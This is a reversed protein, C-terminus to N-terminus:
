QRWDWLIIDFTVGDYATSDIVQFGSKLHAKLSRPNTSAVDTLCYAFEGSLQQQFHSYMKQVIGQGRYGKAVCLQGCLVYPVDALLRGKYHLRDIADMLEDLLKHKGYYAKSVVLIYGVVTDGDKAIVAPHLDHMVKLTESNYAATVFGEASKEEESLNAVFNAKHLELVEDLERQSSVRAVVLSM